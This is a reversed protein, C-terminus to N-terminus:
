KKCLSDRMGQRVEARAAQRYPESSGTAFRETRDREMVGCVAETLGVCTM